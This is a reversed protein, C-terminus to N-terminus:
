QVTPKTAQVQSALLPSKNINAQNSPQGGDPRRGNGYQQNASAQSNASSTRSHAPRSAGSGQSSTSSQTQNLNAQQGQQQKNSLQQQQMARLRAQQIFAQQRQHVSERLLDYSKSLLMSGFRISQTVNSICNLRSPDRSFPNELGEESETVDSDFKWRSDLRKIADIKSDYVNPVADPEEEADNDFKLFEDIVDDPRRVLGRRDIFTRGARASRKRLRFLPDSVTPEDEDKSHNLSQSQAGYGESYASFNNSAINALLQSVYSSGKQENGQDAVLTLLHQFGKSPILEGNSGRFTRMGPLPRKKEVLKRLDENIYNTTNFQHYNSAAISSYPIHRMEKIDMNTNTSIDFYPEFPEDTVNIYGEDQEKRKRLKEWVAKKITDNKEKLVVSVTVLDMDPIKSPPLKVYPQTSSSSESHGNIHKSTSITSAERSDSTKPKKVRREEEEKIKIVRKRKHRIFLHDDGKIGLTRKINKAECRARFLSQEANWNDLKLIERQCVALVLDRANHLSKQLLRIREAGLSDARRTKRTQRIERRRFCIYPDADNEKENANPDEFKLSPQISQGNREIKRQKWHEYIQQGYLSMLKPISVSAQPNEYDKDFLTVYPEYHLEKSLREKLATTSLYKLTNGVQVYPENHSSGRYEELIYTSLEKYSLINSPDMSLFPQKDEITKELKDCIIEFELESCKRTVQDTKGKSKPQNLVNNLFAEDLEDMNYEVGVTDEVTASFKIYSEPEKFTVDSYYKKAEPWIRSADPTPIYVSPAEEKSGNSKKSDEKSHMLARQAANIVQRLHVEDEENKDVGTDIAHMDRQGGGAALSLHHVQSPELDNASDLTPLDRQKYIILPQKVSIKRQRFRAGASSLAKGASASPLVAM